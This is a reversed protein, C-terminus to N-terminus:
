GAQSAATLYNWGEFHSNRVSAEEFVGELRREGDAGHSCPGAPVPQGGWDTQDRAGHQLMLLHFLNLPM